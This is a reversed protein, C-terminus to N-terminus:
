LLSSYVLGEKILIEELAERMKGSLNFDRPLKKIRQAQSESIYVTIKKNYIEDNM